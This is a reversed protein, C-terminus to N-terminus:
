AKVLLRSVLYGRRSENFQLVRWIGREDDVPKYGKVPALDCTVLGDVGILPIHTAQDVYQLMAPPTAPPKVNPTNPPM